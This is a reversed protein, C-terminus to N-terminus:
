PVRFSIVNNVTDRLQFTDYAVQIWEVNKCWMAKLDM